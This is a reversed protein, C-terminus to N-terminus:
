TFNADDTSPAENMSESIAEPERQAPTIGTSQSYNTVNSDPVINDQTTPTPSYSHGMAQDPSASTRQDEYHRQEM